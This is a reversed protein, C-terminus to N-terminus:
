PELRLYPFIVAQLFTLNNRTVNPDGQVRSEYSGCESPQTIHFHFEIACVQTSGGGLCVCEQTVLYSQLSNIVCM